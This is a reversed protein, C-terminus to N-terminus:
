TFTEEQQGQDRCTMYITGHIINLILDQIKIVHNRVSLQDGRLVMNIDGPGGTKAAKTITKVAGDVQVLVIDVQSAADKTTKAFVSNHVNGNVEVAAELMLQGALDQTHHDAM